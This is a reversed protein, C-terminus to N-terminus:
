PEEANKPAPWHEPGLAMGDVAVEVRSAALELPLGETIAGALDPPVVFRTSWLTYFQRKEADIALTHLFLSPNAVPVGDIKATVAPRETPLRFAEEGGLSMGELRIVEDGKPFPFIMDPAAENLYRLNPVRADRKTLQDETLLGLTLERLREGRDGIPPLHYPKGGVNVVRPFWL